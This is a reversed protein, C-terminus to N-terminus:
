ELRGGSVGMIHNSYQYTEGLGAANRQAVLDGHQDYDYEAITTQTNAQENILEVRSIRGQANRNLKLSKGWNGQLRILHNNADYHLDICFFRRM